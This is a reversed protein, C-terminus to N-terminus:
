VLIILEVVCPPLRLFCDCREERRVSAMSGMGVGVLTWILRNKLSLLVVM